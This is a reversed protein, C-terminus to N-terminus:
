QEREAPRCSPCSSIVSVEPCRGVNGAGDEATCSLTYAREPPEPVDWAYTYPLSRDEHAVSGNVTIQVLRVGVNDTAAVTISTVEGRRVMSGTAPSTILAVPPMTDDPGMVKQVETSFVSEHGSTDYATVAFFVSGQDPLGDLSASMAVGVPVVTTYVGPQLGYYLHIGALDMLPSGDANTTPNVWTLMARGAWLPSVAILWLWTSLMICMFARSHM